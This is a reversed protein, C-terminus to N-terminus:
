LLLQGSNEIREKMIHACPLGMFSTFLGTYKPLRDLHQLRYRQDRLKGLAYYSVRGLLQAYFANNNAHPTRIKNSEIAAKHEIHQGILM